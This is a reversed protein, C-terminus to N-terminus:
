SYSTWDADAPPRKVNLGMRSCVQMVSRQSEDTNKPKPNLLMRLASHSHWLRILCDVDKSLLFMPFYSCPYAM